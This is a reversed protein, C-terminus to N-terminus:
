QPLERCLASAIYEGWREYGAQKPHVNATENYYETLNNLHIGCHGWVDIMTLYYYDAVGQLSSLRKTRNEELDDNFRKSDYMDNEMLYDNKTISIAPANMVFIRLKPYLAQLWEIISKWASSTDIGTLWKSPNNWDSDLNSGNFFRLTGYLAETTTSVSCTMGTGGTDTFQLTIQYSDTHGHAFVVSKGDDGEIDTIGTYNYELIRDLVYRLTDEDNDQPVVHINYSRVGPGSWGVRITVDGEKTPLREITLIKGNSKRFVRLVTNLHRNESPISSLYESNFNAELTSNDVIYNDVKFTRATDDFAWAGDNVNQLVVIFKEGENQIYGQDILTKCRMFGCTEGSGGMVTGGVSLAAGSKNNLEQSYQIGTLEAVKEQWQGNMSLSDGLVFMTYDELPKVAPSFTVKDVRTVYFSETDTKIYFYAIKAGKVPTFTAGTEDFSMKGTSLYLESYDEKHPVGSYYVVIGKWPSDEYTKELMGLIRYSYNENVEIFAGGSGNFDRIEGALNFVKYSPNAKVIKDASFINALYEKEKKWSDSTDYFPYSELASLNLLIDKYPSFYVQGRDDSLLPFVRYDLDVLARINTYRFNNIGVLIDKAYLHLGRDLRGETNEMTLWLAYRTSEDSWEYMIQRLFLSPLGKEDKIFDDPISSFDIYLRKVLMNAIKCYKEANERRSESVSESLVFLDTCNPFFREEPQVFKKIDNVTTRGKPLDKDTLPISETGKLTSRIPAESIKTAEEAM